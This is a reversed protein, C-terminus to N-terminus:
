LHSHYSNQCMSPQSNDFALCIEYLTQWVNGKEHGKIQRDAKACLVLIANLDTFRLRNIAAGVLTQRKDWIQHNRFVMDKPQGQKLQWKIKILTRVERALAWLIVPEAIGELKLGILIKDARAYDAALAATTLAFVDFRSRDVVAELVQTHNIAGTGYLMYLKEIEQVAALLNGEVREAILKVSHNDVLLGRQQLRQQLWSWLAQGELPWVQVVVGVKDIAQCWQSKLTASPIKGGSILLLTHDPAHQCYQSLAKAGENGPSHSGLRLDLIKKDAFLSQEAAAFALQKWNFDNGVTLTTRSTFGAQYSAKRITDCAENLQLPDDGSIFYVPVLNKLASHLQEPKLRM